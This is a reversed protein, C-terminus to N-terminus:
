RKVTKRTAFVRGLTQDISVTGALLTIDTSEAMLQRVAM